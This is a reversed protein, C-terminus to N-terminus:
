RMRSLSACTRAPTRGRRPPAAPDRHQARGDACRPRVGGALAEEAAHPPLAQVVDEDQALRVQPAHQALVHRVEVGRPRVLPDPLGDGIRGTGAGGERATAGMTAM